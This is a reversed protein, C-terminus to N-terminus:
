AFNACSVTEKRHTIHERAQCPASLPELLLLSNCPVDGGVLPNNGPQPLLNLQLMAKIPHYGFTAKRPIWCLKGQRDAHVKVRVQM